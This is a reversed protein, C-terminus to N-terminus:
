NSSYNKRTYWIGTTHAVNNREESLWIGKWFRYLDCISHGAVRCKTRNNGKFCSRHKHFGAQEKWLHQEVTDIIRNLIIRTLIKSPISLLTIGRWDQKQKSIFNKCIGLNDALYYTCFCWQSSWFTCCWVNWMYALSLNCGCIQQLFIFMWSIQQQGFCSNYWIIHLPHSHRTAM